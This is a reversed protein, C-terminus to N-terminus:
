KLTLHHLVWHFWKHGKKKWRDEMSDGRQITRIECRDGFIEKMYEIPVHYPAGEMVTPDNENNLMLCQAGPKMLSVLIDSYQKHKCPPLGGFALRDWVADFQGAISSSFDFFDCCYVQINHEKSKFITGGKLNEMQSVAYDMQQEEFFTKIAVDCFELGTVDHGLDAFWKLDISKGCLPVFIKIGKKGGTLLDINDILYDNVYNKHFGIKGMLWRNQWKEQEDM